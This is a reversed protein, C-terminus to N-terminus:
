TEDPVDIRTVMGAGETYVSCCHCSRCGAERSILNRGV